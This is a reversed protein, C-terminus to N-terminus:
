EAAALDTGLVKVLSHDRASSRLFPCSLGM